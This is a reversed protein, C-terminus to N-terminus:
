YKSNSNDSVEQTPNVMTFSSGIIEEDNMKLNKPNNYIRWTIEEETISSTWHMRLIIEKVVGACPMIIATQEKSGDANEDPVGALPIFTESDRANGKFNAHYVKLQKAPRDAYAKISESTALTTASADSFTDTDNIDTVTTSGTGKFSNLTKTGTFTQAGSLHATDADLYASAVATGQWVGTGITGVTTINAQTFHEGAAFNALQDHDIVTQAAVQIVGSNNITATSGMTLTGAVTTVSAAGSAVTVDVEGDADTDGLIQIGNTIVGDYSAVALVLNGAEEGDTADAVQGYIRAMNNEDGTASAGNADNTGRFWINGCIDNNQGAVGDRFNELKIVPGGGASPGAFVTNTMVIEPKAATADSMILSDIGEVTDGDVTVTGDLLINNGAVPELKIQGASDLTIDGDAAIEFHAATAATDVTTLTTAGNTAAAITFTDNTSPTMVISDDTIVTTGITFDTTADITGGSIAGTTTIGGAGVDISTFGSTISGSDLAGVTTVHGQSADTVVTVAQGTASTTVGTGGTVALAQSNLDVAATGSDATLDLDEATVLTAVRDDIAAATMLSTDNDNFTTGSDQIKTISITGSTYEDMTISKGTSLTVNDEFYVDSRFRAISDVIHQGVWKM